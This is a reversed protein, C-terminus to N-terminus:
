KRLTRKDRRSIKEFQKMHMEDKWVMIIDDDIEEQIEQMAGKAADDCKEEEDEDFDADMM